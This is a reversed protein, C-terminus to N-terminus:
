PQEEPNSKPTDELAPGKEAPQEPAADGQPSEPTGKPETEGLVEKAKGPTDSSVPRPMPLQSSPVPPPVADPASPPPLPPHPPPPLSVLVFQRLGSEKAAAAGHRFGEYWQQLAEAGRPSEAHFHRYRKPPLGPPEGCGGAYLYDSFGAEFGEGYDASYPHGPCSDKVKQWAEHALCAYRIKEFRSDRIVKAENYLNRAGITFLGCGSAFPCLLFVAFAYRSRM